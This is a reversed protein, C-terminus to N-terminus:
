QKKCRICFNLLQARYDHAIVSLSVSLQYEFRLHKIIVIVVRMIGIIVITLM